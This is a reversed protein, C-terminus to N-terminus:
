NLGEGGQPCGSPSPLGKLMKERMQDLSQPGVINPMQRNKATGASNQIKQKCKAAAPEIVTCANM